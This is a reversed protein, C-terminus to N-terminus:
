FNQVAPQIPQNLDDIDVILPSDIVAFGTNVGGENTEKGKTRLLRGLLKNEIPNSKTTDIFVNSYIGLESLTEAELLRGNRLMYAKIEPPNIREM